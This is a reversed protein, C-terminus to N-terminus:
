AISDGRHIRVLDCRHVPRARAHQRHGSERFAGHPRPGLEAGPRPEERIGRHRRERRPPGRRGPVGHGHDDQRFGLPGRGAGFIGQALRWGADRRPTCGGHQHAEPDAAARSEAEVGLTSGPDGASVDANGPRRDSVHARGAADGPGANEQDRAQAGDLGPLYGAHALDIRGGRHIDPQEPRRLRIGRGPVDDSGLEHPAHRAGPRLAAARKRGRPHGKTALMISRFSDVFVLGSIRSRSGAPDGEAGQEFRGQAARFGPERLPDVKRDQGCRLVRVATSLAADERAARRARHFLGRASGLQGRLVHDPARAHDQGRGAHRRAFQLLVGAARRWPDYGARCGTQLLRIPVRKQM